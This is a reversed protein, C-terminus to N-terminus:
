RGAPAALAVALAPSAVGRWLSALFHLGLDGALGTFFAQFVVIPSPLIPRRVMLALAEWALVLALAALAVQAPFSGLIHRSDARPRGPPGVGATRGSSRELPAQSPADPNVLRGRLRPAIARVGFRLRADRPVGSPRRGSEGRNSDRPQPSAGPAPRAERAACGGRDHAHRHSDDPRERRAAPPHPEPAVRADSCRARRFARGDARSRPRPRGRLLAPGAGAPPRRPGGGGIWGGGGKPRRLGALLYLLTTKGCGSPGLVAWAEGAGVHWNFGEFVLTGDPYAFTLDRVNIM